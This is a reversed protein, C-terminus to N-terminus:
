VEIHLQGDSSHYRVFEVEFGQPNDALRIQRMTVQYWGYLEDVADAALRHAPKDSALMAEQPSRWACFSRCHGQADPDGRFYLLFGDSQSAERHAADDLMIIRGEDVQPLKQSGFDVLHLLHDYPLQGKDYAMKLIEPVDFAEHLPRLAYDPYRPYVDLKPFEIVTNTEATTWDGEFSRVSEIMTNKYIDYKHKFFM